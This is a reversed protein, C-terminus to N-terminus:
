FKIEGPMGIKIQGDNKVMVKMAYVLDVREEKTQIIKPTFEANQSIWIVTGELSINEKANKDILVKVKQGITVQHLQNGSIYARLIMNSLDAIKYLPKGMTVLESQEAFKNLVTGNVPNIIYYKSLNNNILDIQKQIVTLEANVSLKQTIVAEKQAETIRLKANIDDIQKTTTAGGSLLKNLRNIEINITKIQVNQVNIQADINKIKSAVAKKQAFLQMKQLYLSSTDVYGLILGKKLITGEEIDFKLLQGNAQSSIITEVTEFNGFADSQEEGNKCSVFLVLGIFIIKIKSM